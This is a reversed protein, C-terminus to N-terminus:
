GSPRCLGADTKAKNSILFEISGNSVYYRGDTSVVDYYITVYGEQKTTITGDESVDVLSSDYDRFVIKANENKHIAYKQISRDALIQGSIGTPVTLVGDTMSYQGPSMNLRFAHGTQGFYYMTGDINELTYNYLVGDKGAYSDWVPDEEGEEPPYGFWGNIYLRSNEPRPRGDKYYQGSTGRLLQGNIDEQYGEAFVPYFRDDARISSWGVGTEDERIFEGDDDTWYARKYANIPMGYQLLSWEGNQYVQAWADLSISAFSSDM